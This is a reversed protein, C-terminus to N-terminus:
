TNREKPIVSCPGISVMKSRKVKASQEWDHDTDCLEDTFTNTASLIRQLDSTKTCRPPANKDQQSLEKAMEKLDANSHQQGHSDM